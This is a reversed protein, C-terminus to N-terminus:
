YRATYSLTYLRSIVSIWIQIMLGFHRDGQEESLNLNELVMVDLINPFCRLIYLHVYRMIIEESIM